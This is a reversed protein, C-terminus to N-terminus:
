LALEGPLQDSMLSLSESAYINSNPNKRRWTKGEGTNEKDDVRGWHGETLLCLKGETGVSIDEM